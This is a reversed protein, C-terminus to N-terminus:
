TVNEMYGSSDSAVPQTSSHACSQEKTTRWVFAPNVFLFVDVTVFKGDTIEGTYTTHLSAALLTDYLM